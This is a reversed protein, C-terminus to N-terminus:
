LLGQQTASWLQTLSVTAHPLYQRGRDDKGATWPGNQWTGLVKTVTPRDLDYWDVSEIEFASEASAASQVLEDEELRTKVHAFFYTSADPVYFGFWSFVINNYYDKPNTLGLEERLARVALEHCN